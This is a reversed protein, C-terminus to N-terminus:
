KQRKGDDHSMSLMTLLNNITRMRDPHDVKIAGSCYKCSTPVCFGSRSNCFDVEIPPRLKQKTFDPLSEINVEMAVGAIGFDNVM